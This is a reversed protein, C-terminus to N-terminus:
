GLYVKKTRKQLEKWDYSFRFAEYARVGSAFIEWKSGSHILFSNGKEKEADFETLDFDALTIPVVGSEMYKQLTKTNGSDLFIVADSHRLLHDMDDSTTMHVQGPFDMAMAEFEERHNEGNLVNILFGLECFGSAVDLLNKHMVSDSSFDLTVFFPKHAFKALGERAKGRRPVQAIPSSKQVTKESGSIKSTTTIM